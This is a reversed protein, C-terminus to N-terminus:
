CSSASAAPVTKTLPSRAGATCRHASCASTTRGVRPRRPDARPLRGGDPQGRELHVGVRRLRHHTQERWHQFKAPSAANFPGQPSTTQFVVLRDADPLPVPKLLVANIISFIATNAGIGLALAAVAAISFGPSQLFMRFSHRADRLLDTTTM